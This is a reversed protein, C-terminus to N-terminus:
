GVQKQLVLQGGFDLYFNKLDFDLKDNLYDDIFEKEYFHSIKRPSTPPKYTTVSIKTYYYNKPSEDDNSYNTSKKTEITSSPNANSKPPSIIKDVM